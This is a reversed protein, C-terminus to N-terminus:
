YGIIEKTQTVETIKMFGTALLIEYFILSVFQAVWVFVIGLTRLAFFLVVGWGIAFWTPGEAQWAQLMGVFFNYFADSTPATPPVPASSPTSTSITGVPATAGSSTAATSSPSVGFSHEIQTTAATLTNTQEQSSMAQFNPNNQLEMKALSTAFSQFDGNLSINPYFGSVFGTSWDFFKRFSGQSILVTSPGINPVYVLIMFLLAATAFKGLVSGTTRFFQIEISNAIDSRGALYGWALIAFVVVGTVLVIELAAHTFFAMAAVSELILVLLRRSVSKMLFTEVVELVAWLLLAAILWAISLGTTLYRFFAYGFVGASAVAVIDVIISKYFGPASLVSNFKAQDILNQSRAEGAM